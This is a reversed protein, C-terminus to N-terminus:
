AHCRSALFPRRVPVVLFGGAIKRQTNHPQSLELEKAKEKTPRFKGEDFELEVRVAVCFTAFGVVVSGVLWRMVVWGVMGLDDEFTAEPSVIGDGMGDFSM